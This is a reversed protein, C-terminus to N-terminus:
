AAGGTQTAAGPGDFDADATADPVIELVDYRTVRNYTEGNDDKRVAVKLRCVIGLPVPRELQDLRTIGLKLLDRKTMPMAPETLWLTHWVRRGTHEGDRILFELTFGPTGAASSTLEGGVVDAIYDDKPLPAYESAAKTEDFLRTLDDRSAGNLIEVLRRSNRGM